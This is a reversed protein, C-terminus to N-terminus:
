ILERLKDLQRIKNVNRMNRATETFYQHNEIFKIQLRNWEDISKIRGHEKLERYLNGSVPIFDTRGLYDLDADCIIMELKTKPQPPFKTNLILNAVQDIQEESYFYKPLINRAMKVGCEEHDNYSLIFGTDHFLAATKLILMETRNIGEKRGIIEVETIVDITHKLNHYYLNKPLENELKTLIAEELDDYRLMQFQTIFHQNPVLGKLDSSMNPKFGKVFYMDINGKYKVPMRGRYECIFFNRVLMYTMASINIESVSGSSEMRSATNVTDGWIDYSVKKTGVVGAIVPGTHVGIRLGWIAKKGGKSNIKMNKMYQQIEMAALIVEIPNTRNKNPIGGACMYADGVTKIKEINYKEVVSDFHMFFKDLEDILDEPNMQEVIKTFGHIDSFLVTVMRFRRSSVKGTSQLEEATQKPLLNSVLHEAKEKQDIIERNKDYFENEIIKRQKTLSIRHWLYMLAFLFVQLIGIVVLNESIFNITSEGTTLLLNSSYNITHSFSLYHPAIYM